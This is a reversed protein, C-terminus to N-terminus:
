LGNDDSEDGDLDLEIEEDEMEGGSFEVFEETVNETTVNVDSGVIGGEMVIMDYGETEMFEEIEPDLINMLDDEFNEEFSMAQQEFEQQLQQLEEADEEPDLDAAEEEFEQQLAMMEEQIETQYEMAEPHQQVVTQLQIEGVNIEQASVGTSIGFVLAFGVIIAILSRLRMILNIGGLLILNQNEIKSNLITVTM